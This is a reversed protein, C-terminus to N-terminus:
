IWIRVSQSPQIRIFLKTEVTKLSTVSSGTWRLDLNTARKRIWSSLTQLQPSRLDIMTNAVKKTLQNPRGSEWGPRKTLPISGSGEIILCFYYSFGQNRCNQSKKKVKVKLFNHLHVQFFYYASFILFTFIQKKNADQLDIFFFFIASDPDMLWLCGRIRIWVLGIDHIRLV